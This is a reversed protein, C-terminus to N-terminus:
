GPLLDVPRGKLRGSRGPGGLGRLGAEEPDQLIARAIATHTEMGDQVREMWAKTEGHLKERLSAHERSDYLNRLEHPDRKRDYLRNFQNPAETGSDSREFTYTHRRTYLGRWNATDAIQLFLPISEVADDRGQEIEVALNRGQCTDPVRLGMTGLLTPMLDLAGILLETRQPKLREPWRVILPVRCSDATPHGKEMRSGRSFLMDGHDATFVVITNDTLGLDELKDVIQGFARDVSSCLAMHGHYRTRCEESDECGPRVRIKAPDYLALLDEPAGYSGVRPWSHPPHWSVFLAFPRDHNEDLFRTAQKAQGYQEWDDYTVKEGEHNWYYAHGGRFELTCNNSLFTEDFGYRYPGAPIPRRRDGGYLHWKGIYGTRYGADRLVEGFYNGNGPVMQFDNKIAGTYLGHQGSMLIGRYPTCVPSNSVCNEFLVGQSAFRDIRPTRIQENGYCGLMDSSQQDSFLFVLNPKKRPKEDNAGAPHLGALTAAGVFARRSLTAPQTSPRM